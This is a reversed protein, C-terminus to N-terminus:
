GQYKDAPKAIPEAAGAGPASAGPASPEEAADAEPSAVGVPTEPGDAPSQAAAETDGAKTEEHGTSM